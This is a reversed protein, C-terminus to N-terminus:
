AKAQSYKVDLTDKYISVLATNGQVISQYIIVADQEAGGWCGSIL